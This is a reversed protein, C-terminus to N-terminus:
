GLVRLSLFSCQLHPCRLNTIDWFQLLFGLHCSTCSQLQLTFSLGAPSSQHTDEVSCLVLPILFETLCVRSHEQRLFVLGFWFILCAGEGFLCVFVLWFFGVVVVVGLCLENRCMCVRFDSWCFAYEQPVWQSLIFCNQNLFYSTVQSCVLLNISRKRDSLSCPPSIYVQLGQLHESIHGRIRSSLM